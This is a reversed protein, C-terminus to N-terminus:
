PAQDSSAQGDGDMASKSGGSSNGRRLNGLLKRRKPRTKGTAKALAAKRKEEQLEKSLRLVFAYSALSLPIASIISGILIRKFYEKSQSGFAITRVRQLLPTEPEHSLFLDEVAARTFIPRDYRVVVEALRGQMYYVPLMTWPNTLLTMAMAITKNARFLWAFFLAVAIQLGFFPTLAVLMGIGAGRALEQPTSHGHIQDHILTRLRGIM